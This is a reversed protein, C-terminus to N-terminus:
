SFLAISEQKPKIVFYAIVAILLGGAVFFYVGALFEQNYGIWSTTCLKIFKDSQLDRCQTVVVKYTGSTLPEAVTGAKVMFTSHINSRSWARMRQTSPDAWVFEGTVDDIFPYTQNDPEPPINLEDWSLDDEDVKVVRNESYDWITIEDTPIWYYLGGCPRLPLTMVETMNFNDQWNSETAFYDIPLLVDSEGTVDALTHIPACGSYPIYDKSPPSAQIQISSFSMRM